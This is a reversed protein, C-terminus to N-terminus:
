RTGSSQHSPDAMDPRLTHCCFSCVPPIGQRVVVKLPSHCIPCEGSWKSGCQPCSSISDNGIKGRDLVLRCKENQCVVADKM